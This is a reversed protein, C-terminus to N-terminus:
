IKQRDLLKEDQKESITKIDNKIETQIKNINITMEGKVGAITESQKELKNNIEVFKESM